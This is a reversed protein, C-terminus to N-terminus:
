LITDYIEIDANSRLDKIISSWARSARNQLMRYRILQINEDSLSETSVDNVKNITFVVYDGQALSVGGVVNGDDVPKSARFVAKMIEPDLEASDRRVASRNTWFISYEETLTDADIGQKLKSIIEEGIILTRETGKQFRLREKVADNVESLPLIKEPNHELVRLVVVEDTNIEILDSNNGNILVDESFVATLVKQNNLLPIDGGLSTLMGSELIPLALSESAFELTEPNEFTLIALEDYFEFFRKEAQERRYDTDVEGRVEEFEPSDGGTIEDVVVLQYGYDTAIPDSVVGTEISFVVEDVETDLVGQNLFGFDSIEVTIEDSDYQDRVDEFSIESSTVLDYIEGAINAATEKSEEDDAYVLIQRVKRRETISYNNRYIEFYDRITEEDVNVEQAVKDISLHIYDVKVQEPNKFDNKNQDYYTQLEEDSVEIDDRISTYSITGYSIDRTQNGIAAVIKYEYPTVITTQLLGSQLQELTMDEKIEAEFMTPTYGQRLLHNQYAVTDFGEPNRFAPIEYIATRVQDNSIRLGLDDRVELLLLRDILKDLTQQKIFDNQEALAPSIDQLQQRINQYSRQYVALSVNVGNVDVADINASNGFYSDIGWFAFPIILLAIFIIAMPGTFLNRISQLM